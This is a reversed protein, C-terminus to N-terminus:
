WTFGLQVGLGDQSESLDNFDNNETSWDSTVLNYELGLRFHNFVASLGIGVAKHVGKDEYPGFNGNSNTVNTEVDHSDQIYSVYVVTKDFQYGISTGYQTTKVDSVAEDSSGGSTSSWTGYGAFISAVWTNKAGGPNLFQWKLGAVDAQYYLELSHVVAIGAEINIDDLLLLSGVDIDENITVVRGPPNSTRNSIIEVQTPPSMSVAVTGGWQKENVTPKQFHATRFDVTHSCATFFSFALLLFLFHLISKM